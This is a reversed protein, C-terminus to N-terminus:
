ATQSASEILPEETAALHEVKNLVSEALIATIYKVTEEETNPNHITYTLKQRAM